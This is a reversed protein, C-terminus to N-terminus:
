RARMVDAAIMQENVQFFGGTNEVTVKPFLQSITKDMMIPPQTTPILTASTTYEDSRSRIRQQPDLSIQEITENSNSKTTGRSNEGNDARYKARPISFLLRVGNFRGNSPDHSHQQYFSNNQLFQRIQKLETRRDMMGGGMQENLQMRWVSWDHINIPTKHSRVAAPPPSPSLDVPNGGTRTASQRRTPSGHQKRKEGFIM